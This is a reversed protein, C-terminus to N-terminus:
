KNPRPGQYGLVHSLSAAQEKILAAFREENAAHFRIQPVTICLSGIVEGDQKRIPSGIGVAGGIKDGYSIAYGRDRVAQLEADLQEPTPVSRGSSPASSSAALVAEQTQKPLYALISRGTAGWLMTHATYLEIDYRLPHSSNIVDLISIQHSAALYAVFMCAENCESVVMQMFPRAIESITRDKAMLSSLRILEFGARYRHSVQDWQIIDEKALLHLLRHVTSIPLQLHDAAQKVTFDGDVAAVYRLLMIVRSVTGASKAGTM